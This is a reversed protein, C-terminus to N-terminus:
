QKTAGFTGVATKGGDPTDAHLTWVAGIEQASPGFLSGNFTGTAGAPMALNGINTPVTSVSTTGSVAAGSLKGSLSVNNWAGTTTGDNVTLNTLAGSVAGNSFNVGVNVVGGSLSAYNVAGSPDPVALYAIAKGRTANSTFGSGVYSASGSTPIASTPTQFGVIGNGVYATQVNDDPAYFWLNLQTYFLPSDGLEAHGKGVTVSSGDGLLGPVDLGLNPVKLEFDGIISSNPQTHIGFVLTASGADYGTVSNNTVILVSEQMPFNTGPAPFNNTSFSPGSSSAQTYTVAAAALPAGICIGSCAPPQMPTPTALGATGGGGGGCAALVLLSTSAALRIARKLNGV